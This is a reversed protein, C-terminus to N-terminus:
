RASASDSATTAAQHRQVIQAAHWTVFATVILWGFLAVIGFGSRNM